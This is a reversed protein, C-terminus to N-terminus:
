CKASTVNGCIWTLESIFVTESRRVGRMSHWCISWTQGGRWDRDIMAELPIELGARDSGRLTDKGESLWARWTCWWIREIRAQLDIQLSGLDLGGFADRLVSSRPRGTCRRDPEDLAESHIESNVRDDHESVGRIAGFCRRSGTCIYGTYIPLQMTVYICQTSYLSCVHTKFITSCYTTAIIELHVLLM